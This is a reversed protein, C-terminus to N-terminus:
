QGSRSGDCRRRLAKKSQRISTSCAISQRAGCAESATMLPAAPLPCDLSSPSLEVLWLNRFEVPDGHNQFLIPLPHSGEPSGGGTKNALELNSHIVVGNHWVTIRAPRIRRGEADFQAAFFQIDYTQWSLPPFSMNVLPPRFKYLAGADNFQPELGFSDLVQVEYRKQLYFGSNGRSQGSAFPMYPTKFEAHLWFSQFTRRTEAGVQLLGQESVVANNLEPTESSGDFLVMAGAPAAAGERLSRRQVQSLQGMPRGALDWASSTMGPQVTIQLAEGRLTLVDGAREGVLPWKAAGAFGNGPLGGPYLLASFKGAGLAVVQLGCWQPCGAITVTGVSEGQYAFDSDVDALETIARPKIDAEGTAVSWTLLLSSFLSNVWLM